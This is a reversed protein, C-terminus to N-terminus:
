LHRSFKSTAPAAGRAKRAVQWSQPRLVTHWRTMSPGHVRTQACSLRVVAMIVAARQLWTPWRIIAGTVAAFPSTSPLKAPGAARDKAATGTVHQEGLAAKLM